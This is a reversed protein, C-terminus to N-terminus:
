IVVLRSSDRAFCLFCPSFICGDRDSESCSLVQWRYHRVGALSLRTTHGKMMDLVGVKFQCDLKRPSGPLFGVWHSLMSNFLRPRKQSALYVWPAPSRFMAFAFVHLVAFAIVVEGGRKNLQTLDEVPTGTPALTFHGVLGVVLACVAEWLSGTLM